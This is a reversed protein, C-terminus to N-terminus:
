IFGLECGVVTRATFLRLLFGRDIGAVILSCVLHAVRQQWRRNEQFM